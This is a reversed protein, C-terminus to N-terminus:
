NIKNIKGSGIIDVKLEPEGSYSVVGSGAVKAELKNLAVISANGSGAIDVKAKYSNLGLGKFEGSGAIYVSLKQCTGNIIISGSGAIDSAINNAFVNLSIKGSGSLDLTLKDTRVPTESFVNASGSISIEQLEPLTIVINIEDNNANCLDGNLNLKGRRVTTTIAALYSEYSSISIKASDGTVIKINAPITIIIKSFNDLKINKTTVEGQPEVCNICSTFSFLAITVALFVIHQLPKM